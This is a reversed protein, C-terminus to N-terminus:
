LDVIKRRSSYATDTWGDTVSVRTYQTSVVFILTLLVLPNHGLSELKRVSFM